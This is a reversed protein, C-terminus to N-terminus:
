MQAAMGTQDGVSRVLFTMGVWPAQAFPILIEPMPERRLGANRIDGSVGVIRYDTWGDPGLPVAISAGIPDRDPFVRRALERSVVVVREGEARDSDAIARGALLPIGLVDLYGASVRRVSVQMPEPE